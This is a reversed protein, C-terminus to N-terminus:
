IWGYGLFNSRQISTKLCTWGINLPMLISIILLVQIVQGFLEELREETYIKSLFMEKTVLVLLMLSLLFELMLLRFM